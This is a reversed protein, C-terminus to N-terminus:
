SGDRALRYVRVQEVGDADRWRGLIYDAGIEFISLSSPLELQGLWAGDPAFISWETTAGAQAAFPQIWVHGETDAEFSSYAPMQEPYVAEALEREVAARRSQDAISRLREAKHRAIDDSTVM